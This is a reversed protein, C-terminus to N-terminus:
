DERGNNSTWALLAQEWGELAGDRLVLVRAARVYEEAGDTLREGAVAPIAPAHVAALYRARRVAREVDHRDITASVEVVIWVERPEGDRLQGRVILDADLIEDVEIPGLRELLQDVVEGPASARVRRLLRGLISSARWEYRLELVPGIWHDVRAALRRDAEALEQLATVVQALQAEVREMREALSDMRATLAAIQEEVREMRATLSAIQGEVREMRATLSAIQEEVREMRATLADIRATLTDLRVTLDDIRAALQGIQGEVRDIREALADVRATLQALALETRAQAEALEGIRRESQAQAQALEELRRGLGDVRDGLRVLAQETRAQAEALRRVIDPLELLEESLVHRRLEARWEPHEGLLRILDQFDEAAFPM